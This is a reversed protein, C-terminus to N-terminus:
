GGAIIQSGKPNVTGDASFASNIFDHYTVPKRNEAALTAIHLVQRWVAAQALDPPHISIRLLPNSQLRQFLLRNWALSVAARMPSRVSWCLSQSLHVRGTALDHVSTLRTTYAFGLDRAAAEGEASLLWAPAIFGAPRVGACQALEERGRALLARAADFGIDFFEGEGATYHRTVFRTRATEDPRRERLHAYGHLVAEHGAAVMERLWSAFVADRTINGSHHYDPVVLLSVRRVGAQALAALIATVAERSLPSVDHVSVVLARTTM